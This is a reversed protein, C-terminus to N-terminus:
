GADVLQLPREVVLSFRGRGTREIRALGPHEALRRRLLILRAELNDGLPPLRLAPDVRLEKNTFHRRGDRQHARLLSWLIAGAVGKILYRDAVFVSDDAAYRRVVVPEVAIASDGSALPVRESASAAGGAVRPGGASPVREPEGARLVDIMAALQAALPVLVDELAAGPHAAGDAVLLAGLVRGRAQLPVALLSGAAGLPATSLRGSDVTAALLHRVEHLRAAAITTAGRSAHWGLAGGTDRLAIVAFRLDLESALGVLATDLLDALTECDALRRGLHRGVAALGQTAPPPLWGARPPPPTDLRLTQALM